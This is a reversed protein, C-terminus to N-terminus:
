AVHMAALEGLKTLYRRMEGKDNKSVFKHEGRVYHLPLFACGNDFAQQYSINRKAILLLLDTEMSYLRYFEDVLEKRKKKNQEFDTRTQLELYRRKLFNAQRILHRIPIKDWQTPKKTLDAALWLIEKAANDLVNTNQVVVGILSIDVGQIKQEIVQKEGVHLGDQDQKQVASMYAISKFGYPKLTFVVQELTKGGSIITDLVVVHGFKNKLLRDLAPTYMKNRKWTSIEGAPRNDIVNEELSAEAWMTRLEGDTDLRSDTPLRISLPCIGFSKRLATRMYLDLTLGSRGPFCLVVDKDLKIGKKQLERFYTIVGSGFHLMDQEFLSKNDFFDEGYFGSMRKMDDSLGLNLSDQHGEIL